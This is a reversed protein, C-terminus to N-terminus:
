PTVSIFAFTFAQHEAVRSSSHNRCCAAAPHQSLRPRSAINRWSSRRGESLRAGAAWVQNSPFPNRGLTPREWNVPPPARKSEPQTATATDPCTADTGM